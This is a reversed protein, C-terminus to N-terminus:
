VCGLRANLAIRLCSGMLGKIVGDFIVGHVSLVVSKKFMEIRIFGAGIWRFRSLVQGRTSKSMSFGFRVDFGLLDAM